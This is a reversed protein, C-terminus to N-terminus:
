SIVEMRYAWLGDGLYRREIVYAGFKSKRLDRLRASISNETAHIGIAALKKRIEAITRWRGDALVHRVAELQTLLREGDRAHDYTRGDFLQLTSM